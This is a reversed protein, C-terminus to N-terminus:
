SAAGPAKGGAAASCAGVDRAATGGVSAASAAASGACASGGAEGAAGAATGGASATGVATFDAGGAAGAGEAADIGGGGGRGSPERSCSRARLCFSSAMCRPCLAPNSQISLSAWALAFDATGGVGKSLWPEFEESPPKTAM